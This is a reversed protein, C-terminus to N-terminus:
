AAMRAAMALLEAESVLKNGIFFKGKGAEGLTVEANFVSYRRRRIITKAQEIPDSLRAESERRGIIARMRASMLSNQSAPDVGADVLAAAAQEHGRNVAAAHRFGRRVQADRVNMLPTEPPQTPDRRANVKIDVHRRPEPCPRAENPVELAAGGRAVSVNGPPAGASPSAVEAPKKRQAPNRGKVDPSPADACRADAGGGEASAAEPEPPEAPAKSDSPVTTQDRELWDALASQSPQFGDFSVLGAYRLRRLAAARQAKIRVVRVRHHTCSCLFYLLERDIPHLGTM